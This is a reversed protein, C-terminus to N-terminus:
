QSQPALSILMIFFDALIQHYFTTHPNRLKTLFLLCLFTVGVLALVWVIRCSHKFGYQEVQLRVHDRGTGKERSGAETRM